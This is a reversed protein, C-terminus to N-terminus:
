IMMYTVYLGWNIIYFMVMFNKAPSLESGVM